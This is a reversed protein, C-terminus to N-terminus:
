KVEAKADKGHDKLQADFWIHLANIVATDKSTFTLKAGDPLETYKVQYRDKSEALTKIGPMNAGHLTAPDRFNGKSFMANEKALHKRILSIQATDEPDKAKIMLVGGNDKKIFYHTVKNMDFPMVMHSRSHIMQQRQSLTSDHMQHHQPHTTEQAQLSCPIFFSMFIVVTTIFSFSKVPKRM